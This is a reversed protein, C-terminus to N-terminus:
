LNELVALLKDKKRTSIPVVSGDNMLLTGGDKKDFRKLTNLNILHSQHSRFFGVESLMKEFEKITRSVVIPKEDKLYFITYNSSSELRIIDAIHVIHISEADKM